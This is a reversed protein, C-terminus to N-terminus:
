RLIQMLRPTFVIYWILRRQTDNSFEDLEWWFNPPHFLRQQDDQALESVEALYIASIGSHVLDYDGSTQITARQGVHIWRDLYALAQVYTKRQWVSRVASDRWLNGACVQDTKSALIDLPNQDDNIRQIGLVTPLQFNITKMAVVGVAIFYLSLLVIVSAVMLRFLTSTVGTPYLHSETDHISWEINNIM